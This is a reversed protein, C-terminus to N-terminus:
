SLSKRLTENVVSSFSIRGEEKGLKDAQIKRLKKVLDDEFLITVPQSM